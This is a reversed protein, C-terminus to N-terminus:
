IDVAKWGSHTEAVNVRCAVARQLKKRDQAPAIEFRTAKATTSERKRQREPDSKQESVM